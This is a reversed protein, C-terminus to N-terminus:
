SIFHKVFTKEWCLNDESWIYVLTEDGVITEHDSPKQVPPNWQGHRDDWIWSPAPQRDKFFEGDYEIGIEILKSSRIDSTIEVCQKQFINEAEEKSICCVINEVIGNNIVAFEKNYNM